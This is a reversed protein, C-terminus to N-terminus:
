SALQVLQPQFLIILIAISLLFIIVGFIKTRRIEERYDIPQVNWNFIQMLLQYLELSHDPYLFSIAGLFIGALAIIGIILQVFGFLFFQNM